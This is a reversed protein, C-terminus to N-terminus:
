CCYIIVYISIPCLLLGIDRMIFQNLQYISLSAVTTSHLAVFILDLLCKLLGSFSWIGDPCIFDRSCSLHLCLLFYGDIAIEGCLLCFIDGSKFKPIDVAYM